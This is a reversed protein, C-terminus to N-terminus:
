VDVRSFLADFRYNSTYYADPLSLFRVSLEVDEAIQTFESRSWWRGMQEKGLAENKVHLQWREETDYFNRIREKDPIGSALFRFDVTMQRKMWRLLNKISIPDLNQIVEISWAMNFGEGPSVIEDALGLDAQRFRLRDNEFHKRATELLVDSYDYGIVRGMHSSLASTVLGNGCGFDLGSDQHCFQLVDTIHQVLLEVQEMPVPSGFRTKGVQALLQENSGLSAAPRKAWYSKWDKSM